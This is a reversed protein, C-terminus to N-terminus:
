RDRADHQGGDQIVAATGPVVGLLVDLRAVQEILGPLHQALLRVGVRGGDHTVRDAIRELVGGTGRKVDEDLQQRGDGQDEGRQEDPLAVAGFGAPDPLRGAPQPRAVEAPWWSAETSVVNWASIMPMTWPSVSNRGTELEPWRTMTGCRSPQVSGNMVESANLTISWRPVSTAKSTYKRASQSTIMGAPTEESRSRESPVSGLRFSAQSSTTAVIGATIAPGIRLSRRSAATRVASSTAMARTIPAAIRHSASWTPRLTSPMSFTVKGSASTKPSAWDMARTGPILRAPIVMEAPSKSARLSTVPSAPTGTWAPGRTTPM